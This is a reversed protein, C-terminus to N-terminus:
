RIKATVCIALTGGIRKRYEKIDCYHTQGLYDRIRRGWKIASEDPAGLIPQMTIAVIGDPSLHNRINLLGEKPSLWFPISNISYVKNFKMSVSFDEVSSNLLFINNKEAIHRKAIACKKFSRDIGVIKGDSVIGGVLTIAKGNGFGIELVNDNKKIFLMTVTWLNRKRRVYEKQIKLVRRSYYNQLKRVTKILRRLTRGFPNSLTKIFALNSSRDDVAKPLVLPM